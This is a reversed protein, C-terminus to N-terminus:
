SNAASETTIASVSPANDSAKPDTYRAMSQFTQNRAILDDFSGSDVIDGGKLLYIVDCDRVTSLRHAITIITKQHTLRRIADVVAEETVGDLASTAEDFVLVGPNRYLARAISIRQRQGGSM